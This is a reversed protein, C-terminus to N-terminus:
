FEFLVETMIAQKVEGVRAHRYKDLINDAWFLQLCNAISLFCYRIIRRGGFSSM